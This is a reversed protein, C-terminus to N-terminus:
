DEILRSFFNYLSKSQIDSNFKDFAVQKGTYGIIKANDLNSLARKMAEAFSTESGPDAFFVSYNDTLYNPIEGVSTACVPKGTALYEGLKTPFGGQAQKSNPRPLTLLDANCIISPIKEKSYENMWFVRENLGLSNILKLHNPTDYNYGGVLYLRYEPFEEKIINFAKILISVGDKSDNMVGVFAIYPHIFETLKVEREVDSFRKFDVTMPLHLMQPCTKFSTKYYDILTQTILSIGATNEVIKKEFISRSIVDYIIHIFSSNDKQAIDFFETIDSFLKIRTNAFKFAYKWVTYDNEVWLIGKYDILQCSLRKRVIRSFLFHFLYRNFRRKWINDNISYNLYRYKVKNIVGERGYTFNEETSCYGNLILVEVECDLESLGYILSSFRNASASSFVLPNVTVLVKCNM